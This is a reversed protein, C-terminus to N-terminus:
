LLVPAAVEVVDHDNLRPRADERNLRVSEFVDLLAALHNQTSFRQALDFAGARLRAHTAPDELCKIIAEALGKSTAPDGPALFGNVGDSLWDRIGGVDFAAVPLGFGGAERGVLGFPEPWISPVVLLDCTEFIKELEEAGVWGSFHVQLNERRIRSAQRELSGRDRGDGAIILHVPANLAQQVEPLADILLHVGKLYELRGCFVLTFETKEEQSDFTRAVASHGNKYAPHASLGHKRLEAIMHDSHTVIARYSKMNELRRSQDRYLEIMTLPSLGGCRHPFYHALCRSGFQRTCPQASPFSFTKTGSICMGNYDHAFYVSPALGIIRREFLPDALKHCYIVDPRWQSVATVASQEGLDAVCWSPAGAPLEIKSRDSPGDTEFCFAIEHGARNLEHIVSNLYTEVGGIRRNSSNVIAIRL